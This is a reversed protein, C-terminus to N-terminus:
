VHYIIYLGPCLQVYSTRRPIDKEQVAEEEAQAPLPLFPPIEPPRM